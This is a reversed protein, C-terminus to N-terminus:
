PQKETFDGVSVRAPRIVHEGIKWGSQLVHTVMGDLKADMVPEQKLAEHYQPNFAEGAEPNIEEVGLATFGSILQKEIASFQPPLDGGVKAHQLSDLAPILAEVADSVERRRIDKKEEEFRKSANVFDARSRQWGDLYEQKEEVAKALKERLKKLAVAPSQTEEEDIFEESQEM